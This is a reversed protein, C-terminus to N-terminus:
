MKACLRARIRLSRPMRRRRSFRSQRRSCSSRPWDSLRSSQQELEAGRLLVRPAGPMQDLEVRGRGVLVHGRVGERERQAAVPQTAGPAALAAVQQAGVQGRFVGRGQPAVVHLERLDLLGELFELVIEGDTRHEVLPLSADLRVDEDGEDGVAQVDGQLIRRPRARRPQRRAVRRITSM